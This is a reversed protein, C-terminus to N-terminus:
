CGTRNFMGHIYSTDPSCAMVKSDMMIMMWIVWNLRRCSELLHLYQFDFHATLDAVKKRAPTM